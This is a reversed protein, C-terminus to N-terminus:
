STASVNATAQRLLRPAFLYTGILSKTCESMTSKDEFYFRWFWYVHVIEMRKAEGLLM